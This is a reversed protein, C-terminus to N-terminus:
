WVECQEGHQWLTQTVGEATEVTRTLPRGTADWTRTEHLDLTDDAPTVINDNPTTRVGDETHEIVNGDADLTWTAVFEDTGDDGDDIRLSAPQTPSHWTVRARYNITEDALTTILSWVDIAGDRTVEVVRGDANYATTTAFEAAPNGQEDWTARTIRGDADRRYREVHYPEAGDAPQVVRNGEAIRGDTTVRTLAGNTWQPNFQRFDVTGDAAEHIVLQDIRPGTPSASGDQAYTEPRGNADFTATWTFDDDGDGDADIASGTNRGAADYAPTVRFNVAGDAPTLIGLEDDLTGDQAYGLLRDGDWTWTGEAFLGAADTHATLPRGADDRTWARVETIEPSGIPGIETRMVLRQTGYLASIVRVTREEFGAAGLNRWERTEVTNGDASVLIRDVADPSGDDGIDTSVITCPAYRIGNNTATTGNNTATTGNNTATTSNNTSSNTSHNTSNNTSNNTGNNTANNVGNNTIRNNSISNNTGNNTGNNTSNDFISAPGQAEDDQCGLTPLLLLV